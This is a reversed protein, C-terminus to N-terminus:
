AAAVFKHGCESCFKPAGEYGHGCAPCAPGTKLNKKPDVLPENPDVSGKENWKEVERLIKWIKVTREFERFDFQLFVGNDTSQRKVFLGKNEILTWHDNNLQLGLSAKFKEIVKTYDLRVSGHRDQPETASLEILAGVMNTVREDTKLLEQKGGKFYYYQYFEFMQEIVPLDFFHVNGIELPAEPDEENKQMEYKAWQLKVFINVAQELRKPSELFVRQAYQRMLHWGVVVSEKGDKDKRVEGKTKAVHYVTGFIKATQDPPCPTNDREMRLSQLDRMVIKMKDYLSKTLFKQLQSASEMQTKVAEVPLEIVKTETTCLATHPHTAAGSLAHEGAIHSNGLTCLEIKQKQRDLYLNVSGAQILFLSTAKEGEKYLTEGKKFVKINSM